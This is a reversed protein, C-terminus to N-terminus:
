NKVVKKIVVTDELTIKLIYMGGSLHSIDITGTDSNAHVPVENGSIDYCAISHTENLNIIHFTDKVPNPSLTVHTDVDPNITSLVPNVFTRNAGTGDNFNVLENWIFDIITQFNDAVLTNVTNPITYTAPAKQEYIAMYTILGALFYTTPRGHPADDEYLDTIPIQNLPAQTFLKALTTGVPIMRVNEDTNAAQVYDHYDLWWDHFGNLAYENYDEFEEATPPFNEGGGAIFSSMDPWNEYIYTVANPEETDVFNIIDTTASVPTMNPDNYYPVNSAQYQVFNAPTILVVDFDAEAFTETDSDWAPTVHDFGWQSIPPLNGAHGPLFGYQGSSVFTNGDAEALFHIWHPITTEDSPTPIAPPEHVMLSHGFIYVRKSQQSFACLALLLVCLIISKQLLNIM